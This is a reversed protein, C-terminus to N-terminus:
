QPKMRTTETRQRYAEISEETLPPSLYRRGAVVGTIAQELDDLGSGKLVYGSAGARLAELVYAESGYMSLVIVKTQPFRQHVQRAVEIGNMGSMLLDTILVDPKLTEALKVAEVGDASEGVVQFKADTELLSRIGQRVIKHDDALVIKIPM